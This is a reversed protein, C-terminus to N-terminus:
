RKWKVGQIGLLFKFLGLAVAINSICFYFPVYFLKLYLKKLNLFYGLLAALYFFVQMFFISAYANRSILGSSIFFALLLVPTLTRLIKHSLFEVFIMGRLPNLLSKLQHLMQWNGASMRVRREFEANVSLGEKEFAVAEQEFVSRFGMLVIKAPLIYDDNITDIALNQFLNKRIAYLAGHLGLVSGIQAEKRKIFLEYKVFLSEGKGRLSCDTFSFKYDGCVCGVDPDNFNRVLKSISKKSLLSSADSFIVIEGKVKPVIDNLIAPKGRRQPFDIVTIGKKRYESAIKVTNDSSGDSVIIFEVKERPYELSLLNEIKVRIVAEENYAPVIISVPLEIQRKSVPKSKIAAVITLLCPYGIYIYILTILSIWFTIEM